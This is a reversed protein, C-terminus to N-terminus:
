REQRSERHRKEGMAISSAQDTNQAQRGEEIMVDPTTVQSDAELYEIIFDVKWKRVKNTRFEPLNKM